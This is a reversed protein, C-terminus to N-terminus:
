QWHLPIIGLKADWTRYAALSKQANPVFLMTNGSQQIPVCSLSRTFFLAGDDVFIQSLVFSIHDRLPGHTHYCATQQREAFTRNEGGFYQTKARTQVILSGHGHQLKSAQFLSLKAITRRTVTRQAKTRFVTNRNRNRGCHCQPYLEGKHSVAMGFMNWGFLTQNHVLQFSRDGSKHDWSFGEALLLSYNSNQKL